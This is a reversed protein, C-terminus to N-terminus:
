EIYIAPRYPKALQARKKPDYRKLDKENYISVEANLECKFFDEAEKLAENENIVGVKLQRNKREDSMKNIEEIMQGVFAAVQKAIAKLDPDKMLGKMLDGQIVKASVAKELAKQYAKWKWPAVIYYCVKNPTMGTAKVINLTDELTSLILAEHEEAKVDVKAEDPKPWSALSVFGKGGMKEWLEECIHPAVPALMRVQVDLVHNFVMAIAKKRNPVEKESAIRRLYWQFDQDLEYLASHIAKRVALSDMAETAMKVHEQLRSLMWRDTVTLVVKTGKEPAKELTELAFRYLRELRDRMSKALTPSFDADQLLEATALVALRLPDAGFKTLGERLPIINGFSKSMKVGQMLVSGNTVIQQPWLEKPFIATHNFIM